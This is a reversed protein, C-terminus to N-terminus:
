PAEKFDARRMAAYKHCLTMHNAYCEVDNNAPAFDIDLGNEIRPQGCGCTCLKGRFFVMTEHTRDCGVPESVKDNKLNPLDGVSSVIFDGVVTALRFRCRNSCIFHASRGLWIWESQPIPTHKV